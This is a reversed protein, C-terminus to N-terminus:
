KPTVLRQIDQVYNLTEAIPPLGGAADVRGPGANYAGLALTLDGAYRTMLQKLFRAGANINEEPDFPDQVGFQLATAPMLQM